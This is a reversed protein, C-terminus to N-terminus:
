IINLYEFYFHGTYKKNLYDFCFLINLYKNLFKLMSYFDSFQQIAHICTANLFFCAWVKISQFSPKQFTYGFNIM